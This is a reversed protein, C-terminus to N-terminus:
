DINRFPNSESIHSCSIMSYSPHPTGSTSFTLILAEGAMLMPSRDVTDDTAEAISLSVGIAVICAYANISLRLLSM